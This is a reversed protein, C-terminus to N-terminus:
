SPRQLNAAGYENMLRFVYEGERVSVEPPVHTEEFYDYGTRIGRWFDMWTSGEHATMAEAIMRFPSVHVVFAKQGGRLAAEALAYIEEINDDGMAFCGISVWSGHVMIASGTYGRARDYENPYGIDFSLHFRSLPNLQRATVSYFGEPAQRDGEKTKTGLTGSFNRIVYTRFLEYVGRAGDYVWVELEKSEKFIRIFIPAGFALGKDALAEELRPRVRAVAEKSRGSVPIAGEKWVKDM